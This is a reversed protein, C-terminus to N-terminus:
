TNENKSTTNGNISDHYIVAPNHIIQEELPLTEGFEM